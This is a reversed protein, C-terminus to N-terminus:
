LRSELDFCGFPSIEDRSAHNHTRMTAACVVDNRAHVGVRVLGGAVLPVVDYAGHVAASRQQLYRGSGTEAFPGNDFGARGWPPGDVGDCRCWSLYPHQNQGWGAQGSGADNM